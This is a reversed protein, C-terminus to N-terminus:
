WRRCSRGSDIHSITEPVPDSTAAPVSLPEPEIDGTPQSEPEIGVNAERAVHRGIYCMGGAEVLAPGPVEPAKAEEEEGGEQEAKEAAAAPADAVHSSTEPAAPAEASASDAEQLKEIIQAKRQLGTSPIGREKLLARLQAVTQKNYDTM